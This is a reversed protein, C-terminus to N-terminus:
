GRGGTVASSSPDRASAPDAEGAPAAPGASAVHLSRIDDPLRMGSRRAWAAIRGPASLSAHRRTLELHEQTLAEIRQHLDDVRFSSQALLANLTVLGLLFPGLVVACLVLFGM